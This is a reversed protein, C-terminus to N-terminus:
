CGARRQRNRVGVVLRLCKCAMFPGLPRRDARDRGLEADRVLREALPYSRGLNVVAEPGAQGGVLVLAELGQLPLVSFQTPGILDQLAGRSQRDPPPPAIQHVMRVAAALVQGDAVGLAQDLAADGRRDARYAVAVVVGHGLRHDAQVLGLHDAPATRSPSRRPQTRCAKLPHVPEVVPSQELGRYVRPPEVIRELGGNDPTGHGLSTGIRRRLRSEGTPGRPAFKVRKSRRWPGMCPPATVQSEKTDPM